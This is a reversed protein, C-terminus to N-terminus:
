RQRVYWAWFILLPHIVLMRVWSIWPPVCLGTEICSGLQIFYIHSPIFAILLAIIGWSAWKRTPATLLGIGLLIEAIGALLNITYPYPLYDPILPYYFEPMVFHNLGALVFFAALLNRAIYRRNDDWENTM